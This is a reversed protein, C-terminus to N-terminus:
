ESQLSHVRLADEAAHKDFGCTQGMRDRLEMATRVVNDSLVFAYARDLAPVGTPTARPQRLVRGLLQEVATPTAANGISALVYAFPCDWGERLKDVTVVYHVESDPSMLDEDGIEDIAGTCIRVEREPVDLRQILAAKVV